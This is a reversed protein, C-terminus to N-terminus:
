HGLASMDAPTPTAVLVATVAVVLVGVILEVTASRRIRRAGEVDGLAPRVRLWNYAGTGAVVSLIGLKLLLTRGYATQWLATVAGLHMWAAFVGTAAALGAFALATPSYANVLDAAALGRDDPPLRLAAAIGVTVVILLSGLWGGAGIVHAGDALIALATLRPVAAAHGALAPTFALVVAGLAAAAWGGRRGRRAAAFGALAIIVGVVQAIWGWGWLTRGVLAAVLTPDWAGEPGYLAYSQAGLRLLAAVGVVATAALGVPAARDRAVALMPSDPNQKRRLFELVFLQFAVAGLVILLGTFQLWRIAAYLPSEADFVDDEAVMMGDQDAAPPPAEGGGAVGAAAPMTGIGRAGPAIIFTYHGRVPHGDAGAMQWDVTYSGAHLPGRIDTVLSRRADPATRLASLPVPTGDSDLLQIVSIALEPAENFDLRLTRPVTTLRAGAAPMSGTLEGHASAVAPFALTLLALLLWRVIRTHGFRPHALRRSQTV